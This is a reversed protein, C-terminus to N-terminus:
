SIYIAITHGLVRTHLYASMCVSIKGEADWAVRWGKTPIGKHELFFVGYMRATAFGKGDPSTHTFLILLYVGTSCDESMFGEINRTSSNSAVCTLCRSLIERGILIRQRGTGASIRRREPSMRAKFCFRLFRTGQQFGKSAGGEGYVCLQKKSCATRDESM